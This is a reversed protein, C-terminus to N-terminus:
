LSMLLRRNGGRVGGRLSCSGIAETMASRFLRRSVLALTWRSAAKSATKPLELRGPPLSSRLSPRARPFANAANLRGKTTTVVAVCIEFPGSWKERSFMSQIDDALGFGVFAKSFLSLGPASKGLVEEIKV